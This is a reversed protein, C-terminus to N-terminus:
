NETFSYNTSQSSINGVGLVIFLYIDRSCYFSLYASAELFIIEILVMLM